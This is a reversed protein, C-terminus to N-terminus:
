LNLKNLALLYCAPDPKKKQVDDGTVIFNFYQRLNFADIITHVSSSYASSIVATKIGKSKLETLFPIVGTKIVLDTKLLNEYISKFLYFYEDLDVLLNAKSVFHKRIVLGSMGMVEKYISQHSEGGLQKIARSFALAKLHENDVLTGDLDFFIGVGISRFREISANLM